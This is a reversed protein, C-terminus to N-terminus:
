RRHFWNSNMGNQTFTVNKSQKGKVWAPGHYINLRYRHTVNTNAPIEM